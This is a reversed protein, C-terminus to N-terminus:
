GGSNTGAASGVGQADGQVAERGTLKRWISLLVKRSLEACLEKKARSDSALTRTHIPQQSFFERRVVEPIDNNQILESVKLDEITYM